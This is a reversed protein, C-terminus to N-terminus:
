GEGCWGRSTKCHAKTFCIAPANCRRSAASAYSVISAAQGRHVDGRQGPCEGGPGVLAVHQNVKALRSGLAGITWQIDANSDVLAKQHAFHWVGTGWNQLNVYRLRARPGVFIEIAGCHLGAGTPDTGATESLVTAEAGEDLVILTHSFDAADPSISSFIHLPKEIKVGKPVYLVAGGSMCAAHLAAFKDVRYDVAKTFLYQRILEGHTQILEELSGFLM